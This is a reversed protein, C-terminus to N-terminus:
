HDPADSRFLPAVTRTSGSNDEILSWTDTWSLARRAHLKPMLKSLHMPSEVMFWRPSRQKLDNKLSPVAAAARPGMEGLIEILYAKMGRKQKPMEQILIPLTPDVEGSIRWVTAAAQGRLSSDSEAMAGKLDPLASVASAGIKGLTFTACGRLEYDSNTQVNGGTNALV